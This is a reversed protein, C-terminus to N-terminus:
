LALERPQLEGDAAVTRSAFLTRRAVAMTLLRDIADTHNARGDIHEAVMQSVRRTDFWTALADRDPGSLTDRVLGALQRRTWFRFHHFKDVGLFRTELVRSPLASSVKALWDPAGHSTLYEAKVVSRRV